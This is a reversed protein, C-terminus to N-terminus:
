LSQSSHFTRLESLNNHIRCPHKCCWPQQCCHNSSRPIFSYALKGTQDLHLAISIKIAITIIQVYDTSEANTFSVCQAKNILNDSEINWSSDQAM